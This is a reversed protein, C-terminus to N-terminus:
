EYNPSRENRINAIPLAGHRPMSLNHSFMPLPFTSDIFHTAVLWFYNALKIMSHRSAPPCEQVAGLLSELM